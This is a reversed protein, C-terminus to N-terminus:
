FHGPPRAHGIGGPVDIASGHLPVIGSQHCLGAFVTGLLWAAVDGTDATEAADILIEKGGRVLFRAVDPVDLLLADGSVQADPFTTADPLSEPVRGFRVAIEQDPTERDTIRLSEPLPVESM